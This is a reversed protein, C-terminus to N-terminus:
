RKNELEWEVKIRCPGMYKNIENNSNEISITRFSIFDKIPIVEKKIMNVFYPYIFFKGVNFFNAPLLCFGNYIGNKSFSIFKNEKISTTFIV